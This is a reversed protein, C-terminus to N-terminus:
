WVVDAPKQGKFEGEACLWRGFDTLTPMQEFENCGDLYMAFLIAVDGPTLQEHGDRLNALRETPAYTGWEWLRCNPDAGERTRPMVSTARGDSPETWKPLHGDDDLAGNYYMHWCDQGTNGFTDATTENYRYVTSNCVACKSYILSV